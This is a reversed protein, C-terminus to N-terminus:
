KIKADEKQSMFAKNSLSGLHMKRKLVEKLIYKIISAIPLRYMNISRKSLDANKSLGPM